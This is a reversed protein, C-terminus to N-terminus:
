EHLSEEKWPIIQTGGRLDRGINQMEGHFVTESSKNDVDVKVVETPNGWKVFHYPQDLIPM